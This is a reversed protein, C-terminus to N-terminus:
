GEKRTLVITNLWALDSVTLTRNQIKPLWTKAEVPLKTVADELMNWQYNSLDLRDDRVEEVKREKLGLARGIGLAHAKAIDNLFQESSLAYIDSPSDIFLVETLIAPMKTNRLVSFDAKKMGRNRLGYNDLVKKIEQHFSNRIASTKSDSNIHIYDEYGTGGGANIHISVFLDAHLNNAFRARDALDLYVDTTRTMYVKCEYNITLHNYIRNALSLTLDKEKTNFGVAGPDKGGHGADLVILM